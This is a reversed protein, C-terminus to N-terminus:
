LTCSCVCVCVCTRCGSGASLTEKLVATAEEKPQDVCMYCECACPGSVYMCACVVCACLRRHMCADREGEEEEKAKGKEGRWENTTSKGKERPKLM